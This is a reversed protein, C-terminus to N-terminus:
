NKVIRLTQVGQKSQLKLFYVGPLYSSFDLEKKNIGNDINWVIADTKRGIVDLVDVSINEKYYGDLQLVFKGNTPNPYVSANQFTELNIENISQPQPTFCVNDLYANDMIYILTDKSLNRTEFTVSFNTGAYADLNIYHTTYPDNNAPPPNYTGGIQAGNVLVRFNSAM